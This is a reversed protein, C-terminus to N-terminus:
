PELLTTGAMRDGARRGDPRRIVALLELLNWGPVLMPLNRVVSAFLGVPRGGQRVLRLGFLRKGPSQGGVDRLLFLVGFVAQAALFGSGLATPPDDVWLLIGVIAVTSILLPVGALLLLDVGYAAARVWLRGGPPVGPPLVGYSPAGQGGAKKAAEAGGRLDFEVQVEFAGHRGRREDREGAAQRAGNEGVRGGDARPATEPCIETAKEVKVPVDAAAEGAGGVVGGDGAVQDAPQAPFPDAVGLDVDRGGDDFPDAKRPIGNAVGELLDEGEVLASAAPAEEDEVVGDALPPGLGGVADEVVVLAAGPGARGAEAEATVLGRQWRAVERTNVRADPAEAERREDMGSLPAAGLRDRRREPPQLGDPDGM